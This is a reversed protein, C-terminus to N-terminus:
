LDGSTVYIRMRTLEAENRPKSMSDGEADCSNVGRKVQGSWHSAVDSLHAEGPSLVSCFAAVSGGHATDCALGRGPGRRPNVQDSGCRVVKPGQAEMRSVVQHFHWEYRCACARADVCRVIVGEYALM